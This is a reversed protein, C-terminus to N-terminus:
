RAGRSWFSALESGISAADRVYRIRRWSSPFLSGYSDSVFREDILLVMGRDTETRIVRGAAQLVRNMGPFQYAFEFGRGDSEAFHRRIVERELCVGPLGVGVIIAGSLRDGVLDIGEGFIGGMIAFGALSRAGPASFKELFEAREAESMPNKQILIDTAGGNIELYRSYVEDMYKYSPFFALYNGARATVAAFIAGAVESYSDARSRYRTSIGGHVLVCLNDPPFPSELRLSIPREATDAGGSYGGSVRAFYDMPTLTASFLIAARGSDLAESLHRAPDVCFLKVAVDNNSTSVLTEYNDGYMEAARSFNRAEFYLEIFKEPVADPHKESGLWDRTKMVFERVRGSLAEPPAASSKEGSECESMDKKIKLFESNVKGAAAFLKPASKKLTRRAELFSSKALVASYMERARDCLNHAEDVLFAYDGQGGPTGSEFFRKLRVRPDFVYNYDCVICDALLSLDLSFEFPCIGHRRAYQEVEARGFFDIRFIDDCAENLRDYYGAAYQCEAADCAALDPRFCIKDKATIFLSKLSLGREMMMRLAAVAVTATVTRATLYFIKSVLGTGIAKIAPFLTAATKGTGTPAQAFLRKRGRIANYAAVAFERQGRRYNGFPFGLRGISDDRLAGWESIMKARAYFKRVLGGFFEALEGAPVTKKFILKERTELSFYTLQVGASDLGEREAIMFAYCMAQAWFVPNSDETIDALGGEVTKIEDVAVEGANRIVGDARGSVAMVMDGLDTEASLTVEAEYGEPYARQVLRHGRIGEQMRAGSAFGFELDGSRLCYEVLNRVSIRYVPKEPM